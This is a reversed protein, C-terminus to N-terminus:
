QRFRLEHDEIRSDMFLALPDILVTDTEVKTVGHRSIHGVNTEDWDFDM